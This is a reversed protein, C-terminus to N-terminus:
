PHPLAIFWFAISILNESLGVNNEHYGNEFVRFMYLNIINALVMMIGVRYLKSGSLM